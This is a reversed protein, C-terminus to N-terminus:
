DIVKLIFKRFYIELIFKGFIYKNLKGSSSESINKEFYTEM